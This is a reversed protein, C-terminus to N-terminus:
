LPFSFGPAAPTQQSGLGAGLIDEQEALVRFLIEAPPEGAGEWGSCPVPIEPLPVFAALPQPHCHWTVMASSVLYWSPQSWGLAPHISDKVEQNKWAVM